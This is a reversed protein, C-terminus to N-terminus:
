RHSRARAPKKAQTRAPRKRVQRISAKLLDELNGVPLQTPETLAPPTPSVINEGALKRDILDVVRQRHPSSLEGARPGNKRFLGMMLETGLLLEQESIEVAQLQDAIPDAAVQDEALVLRDLILVDGASRIACVWESGKVNTRSLAVLETRALVRALLAYPRRGVPAESPTLWYSSEVASAYSADVVATIQLERTDAPALADVEEQSLLVYHGPVVEFARVTDEPGVVQQHAECWARQEVPAMCEPDNHLKRITSRASTKM